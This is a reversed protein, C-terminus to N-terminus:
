HAYKTLRTITDDNCVEIVFQSRIRIGIRIDDLLRGKEDVVYIDNLTEKDEGNERIFQMARAVTWEQRIALFDPTM